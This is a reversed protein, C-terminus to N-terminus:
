KTKEYLLKKQEAILEEQAANASAVFSDVVSDTFQKAQSALSSFWDAM